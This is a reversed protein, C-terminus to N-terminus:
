DLSGGLNDGDGGALLVAGAEGEGVGQEGGSLWTVADRGVTATERDDVRLPLLGAEVEEGLGKAQGVEAVKARARDDVDLGAEQRGIPHSSMEDGSM